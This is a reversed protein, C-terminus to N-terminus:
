FMHPSNLFMTMTTENPLMESTQSHVAPATSIYYTAVFVVYYVCLCLMFLYFAANTIDSSSRTVTVSAVSRGQVRDYKASVKNDPCQM